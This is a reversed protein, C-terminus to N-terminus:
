CQGRPLLGHPRWATLSSRLVSGRLGVRGLPQMGAVGVARERLGQHCPDPACTVGGSVM